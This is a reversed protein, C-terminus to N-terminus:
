FDAKNTVLLRLPWRPLCSVSEHFVWDHLQFQIWAAALLNLSTAPIFGDPKRTMFRDSVLRPNPTWLEEETPKQTYQRPFNRGFRMGSCGTLPLELSNFKGDSNQAHQFRQDTLPHEIPNGLAAGTAYTSYLNQARLETRLTALNLAGLAPPLEHWPTHKNIVKFLSIFIRDTFSPQYSYSEM